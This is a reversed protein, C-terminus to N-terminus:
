ERGVTSAPIRPGWGVTAIRLRGDPPLAQPNLRGNCPPWNQGSPTDYVTMLRESDRFSPAGQIQRHKLMNQRAPDSKEGQRRPLDKCLCLASSKGRNSLVSPQLRVSQGSNSEKQFQNIFRPKQARPQEKSRLQSM